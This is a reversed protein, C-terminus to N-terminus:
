HVNFRIVVKNESEKILPGLLIQFILIVELLYLMISYIKTHYNVYNKKQEKSEM